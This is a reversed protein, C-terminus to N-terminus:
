LLSEDRTVAPISWVQLKLFRFFVACWVNKALQWVNHVFIAPAIAPVVARTTSGPIFPSLCCPPVNTADEGVVHDFPPPPPPMRSHMGLWAQFAPLSWSWFEFSPHVHLGTQLRIKQDLCFPNCTCAILPIRWRATLTRSQHFPVDTEPPSFLCHFTLHPFKILSTLLVFFDPTNSPGWYVTWIKNEM